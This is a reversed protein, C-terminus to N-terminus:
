AQKRYEIESVEKETNLLIIKAENSDDMENKKKKTKFSARM